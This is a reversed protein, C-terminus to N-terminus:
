ENTREGREREREGRERKERREGRGGRKERGGDSNREAGRETERATKNWKAKEPICGEKGGDKKRAAAQQKCNHKEKSARM